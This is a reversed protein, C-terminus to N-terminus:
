SNRASLNRDRGWVVLGGKHALIGMNAITRAM